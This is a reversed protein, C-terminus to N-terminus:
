RAALVLWLAGATLVLQLGVMALLVTLRTKM